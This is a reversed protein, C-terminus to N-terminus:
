KDWILECDSGYFDRDVFLNAVAVVAGDMMLIPLRRRQWSPIRLEQYLKKLKRSGNRSHPHASLGEPNFRVYMTSTLQARNLTMTSAEYAKALRLTGLEDPLDLAMPLLQQGPSVAENSQLKDNPVGEGDHQTWKISVASMDPREDVWYLQGDFRRVSGKVLRLEPNADQRACAVEQWLIQLQRESPLVASRSELWLRLLYDRKLASAAQLDSISLGGLPNILAELEPSLMEHLLSEQNACLRASRHVSHAFNPWRSNIIPMVDHRLFNRDFRTDANSEDNVWQLGETEAYAAIASQPVTILPRVIRGKGWSMAEAMSSLGKPGSGRKLALMFTEAQDDLHQGTILIDSVAMYQELVGYRADRALKEISKGSDIELTVKNSVFAIGEESAWRECDSLWVDAHESLGHHVHVALCERYPHQRSYISLLRLLVRSDMGGSLALIVKSTTDLSTSLTDSFQQYLFM